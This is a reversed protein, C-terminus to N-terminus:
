GPAPEFFGVDFALVRADGAKVQDVVRAYNARDWSTWRGLRELSKSDIAIIVVRSPIDGYRAPNQGRYFADHSIQQLTTFFHLRYIAVLGLGVAVAIVMSVLLRTRERKSMEREQCHAGPEQRGPGHM